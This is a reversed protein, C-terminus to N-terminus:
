NHGSDMYHHVNKCNLATFFLLKEHICTSKYSGYCIEFFYKFFISSKSTSIKNAYKFYTILDWNHIANVIIQIEFLLLGPNLNVAECVCIIAKFNM